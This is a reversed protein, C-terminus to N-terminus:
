IGRPLPHTASQPLYLDGLGRANDNALAFPMPDQEEHPGTLREAHLNEQKQCLIDM